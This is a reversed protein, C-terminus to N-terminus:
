QVLSAAYMLLVGLSLAVVPGRLIQVSGATCHALDAAVVDIRNAMESQRCAADRGAAEDAAIFSINMTREQYRPRPPPTVLYAFAANADIPLM